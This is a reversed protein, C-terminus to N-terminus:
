KVNRSVNGSVSKGEALHIGKMKRKYERFATEILENRFIVLVNKKKLKMVIAYFHLMFIQIDIVSLHQTDYVM